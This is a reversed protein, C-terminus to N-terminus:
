QMPHEALAQALASMARGRHSIRGKDEASMQAFTRGDGEDPVFVPDYGFGHDGRPQDIIAGPCEGSVVLENGAPDRVVIVTRFQARRNPQDALEALLLEVNDADTAADGAFRASRVGPRGDLADVFLGTDDAVAALGAGQAVADAKLRANAELTDGDEVVDGVSDPRPLVEAVGELLGVMEAVKKPNASALVLRM